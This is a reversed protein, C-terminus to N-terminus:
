FTTLRKVCSAFNNQYKSKFSFIEHVVAPTDHSVAYEDHSAFHFAKLRPYILDKGGKLLSFSSTTSTALFTFNLKTDACSSRNILSYVKLYTLDSHTGAAEVSHTPGVSRIAYFIRSVRQQLLRFVYTSYWWQSRDSQIPPSGLRHPM